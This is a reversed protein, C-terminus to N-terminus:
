QIRKTSKETNKRVKKRYKQQVKKQSKGTHKKKGSFLLCVLLDSLTGFLVDNMDGKLLSALAHQCRGSYVKATYPDCFMETRGDSLARHHPHRPYRDVLRGIHHLCVSTLTSCSTGSEGRLLSPPGSTKWGWRTGSPPATKTSTGVSPWRADAHSCSVPIVYVCVCM